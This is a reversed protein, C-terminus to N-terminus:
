DHADHSLPHSGIKYDCSFVENNKSPELNSGEEVLGVHITLKGNLSLRIMTQQYPEPEVGEEKVVYHTVIVRQDTAVTALPLVAWLDEGQQITKYKFEITGEMKLPEPIEM